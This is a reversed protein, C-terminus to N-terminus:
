SNTNHTWCHPHRRSSQEGAQDRAGAARGTFIQNLEPGTLHGQLAACHGGVLAFAGDVDLLCVVREDVEAPLVPGRSSHLIHPSNVTPM